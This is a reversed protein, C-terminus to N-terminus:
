LTLNNNHIMKVNLLDSQVVVDELGASLGQQSPVLVIFGIVQIIM